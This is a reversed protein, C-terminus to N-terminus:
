NINQGNIYKPVFKTRNGELDQTGTPPNQVEEPSDKNV